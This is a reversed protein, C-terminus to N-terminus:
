GERYSDPVVFAGEHPREVNVFVYGDGDPSGGAVWRGAWGLASALRFAADAHNQFTGLSHDWDDVRRRAECRAVVQGAGTRPNTRYKTTIAQM